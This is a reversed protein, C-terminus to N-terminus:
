ELLMGLALEGDGGMLRLAEKVDARTKGSGELIDALTDAKYDDMDLTCDTRQFLTMEMAQLQSCFGYNPRIDPKRKKVYEFSHKLTHGKTMLYYIVVSASRSQGANCHVLCRGGKNDICQHIFDAADSFPLRQQPSDYCALQCVTVGGFEQKPLEKAINLIHTFGDAKVATEDTASKAPGLYLRDALITYAQTAPLRAVHPEDLLFAAAAKDGTIMTVRGM